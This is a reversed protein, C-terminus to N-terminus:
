ACYNWYIKHFLALWQVSAYVSASIHAHVINRHSWECRLCSLNLVWENMTKACCYYRYMIIRWDIFKYSIQARGNLWGVYFEIHIYTSWSSAYSTRMLIAMSYLVFQTNESTFQQLSVFQLCKLTEAKIGNACMESVWVCVCETERKKTFYSIEAFRRCVDCMYM